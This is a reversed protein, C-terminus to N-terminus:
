APDIDIGVIRAREFYQLWVNLSAGNAVGIEIVNIPERRFERFFKDYHRLARNFLPQAIDAPQSERETSIRSSFTM